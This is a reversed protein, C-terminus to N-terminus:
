PLGKTPPSCRAISAARFSSRRESRNSGPLDPPLSPAKGPSSTFRRTGCHSRRVSAALSRAWPRPIKGIDSPASISMAGASAATMSWRGLWPITPRKITRRPTSTPPTTPAPWGAAPCACGCGWGAADAILASWVSPRTHGSRAPAAPIIAHGSTAGLNPQEQCRIVARSHQLPLPTGLSSEGASRPFPCASNLEDHARILVMSCARSSLADVGEGYSIHVNQSSIPLSPQLQQLQPTEPM